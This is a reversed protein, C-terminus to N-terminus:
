QKTFCPNDYSSVTHNAKIEFQSMHVTPLFVIIFM